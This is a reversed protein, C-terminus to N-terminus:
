CFSILRLFYKKKRMIKPIRTRIKSNGLVLKAVIVPDPHSPAEVM